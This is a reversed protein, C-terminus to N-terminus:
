KKGGVVGSLMLGRSWEQKRQKQLAPGFEESAMAKRKTGVATPVGVRANPDPTSLRVMTGDSWCLDHPDLGHEPFTM